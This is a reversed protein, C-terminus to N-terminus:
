LSDGSIIPDNNLAVSEQTGNAVPSGNFDVLTATTVNYLEISFPNLSTGGASTGEFSNASLVGAVTSHFYFDSTVSTSNPLSIEELMNGGLGILTGPASGGYNITTAGATAVSLGLSVVIAALPATFRSLLKMTTLGM